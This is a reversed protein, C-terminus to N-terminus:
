FVPNVIRALNDAIFIKEFLGWFFLHSGEFFQDWSLIRSSTIQPLFDRARMIPGAVLHPFYIVFLVYDWYRKAPQIQKRYVDVIYSIAEFTYFSVGIPLIINLTLNLSAPFIHLFQFINQVNGIFFNYYKFFGLIGLNVCLSLCLFARRKNPDETRNMLRSCWFDTSISTFMIFLFKWNWAAYFLCSAVILLRNQWSQRLFLYLSYVVVFFVLFELSNFLM